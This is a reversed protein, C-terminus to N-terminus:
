KFKEAILADIAEYDPIWYSTAYDSGGFHGPLTHFHIRDSGLTAALGSLALLESGRLNSDLNDRAVLLLQPLRLITLPNISQQVAAHMLQQQREVRGIDGLGDHRFRLFQLAQDGNLHQRGQPLDIYLQQSDDRYRMAQSVDVTVGGLTDVLNQVGDLNMRLYRDVPAQLLYRTSGAALSAGGYANAANLKDVGYGRLETRTDRPISLIDLRREQPDFHALLITDTLGGFRGQVSTDGPVAKTGLILLNMPRQLRPLPGPTFLAEPSFQATAEPSLPKHLLPTPSLSIATLAGATLAALLTAGRKVWALTTSSRRRFPNLSTVVAM